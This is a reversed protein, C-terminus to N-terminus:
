TPLEVAARVTGAPVHRAVLNVTSGTPAHIVWEVKARDDTVDAAYGTNGPSKYANGELQTLEERSRCANSSSWSPVSRFGSAYLKPSAIREM